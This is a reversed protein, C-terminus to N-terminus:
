WFFLQILRYAFSPDPLFGSLFDSVIVGFRLSVVM